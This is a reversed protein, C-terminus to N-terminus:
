LSSIKKIKKPVTIMSVTGTGPRSKIQLTGNVTMSLIERVYKTGSGEGTEESDPDFGEFSDQVVVVYSDPRDYTAILIEGGDESQEAGHKVSNEVLPQVAFPPLLFDDTEIQYRVRIRDGFRMQELELYNRVTRLERSFPILSQEEMMNLVDRLYDSFIHIAEKATGVDQDCLYYISALVNYIYHPKIRELTAKTRNMELRRVEAQATEMAVFMLRIYNAAVAVFLMMYWSSLGPFLYDWLLSTLPLMPTVSLFLRDRVSLNAGRFLMLLVSGFFFTYNFGAMGIYVGNYPYQGMQFDYLFPYICNAILLVEGALCVLGLGILITRKMVASISVQSVVFLGFCWEVLFSFCDSATLLVKFAVENDAFFIQVVGDCLLAFFTFIMCLFMPKVALIRRWHPSVQLAVILLLSFVACVISIAGNVANMSDAIIGM